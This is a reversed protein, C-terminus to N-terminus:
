NSLYLVYEGNVYKWATEPDPEPFKVGLSESRQVKLRKSWTKMFCSAIEEFENSNTKECVWAVGPPSCVSVWSWPGHYEWNVKHLPIMPEVIDVANNISEGGDMAPPAPPASPGKSKQLPGLSRVLSQGTTTANGGPVLLQHANDSIVSPADLGYQLEHTASNAKNRSNTPSEAPSQEGAFLLDVYEDDAADFESLSQGVSFGDRLLHPTAPMGIQLTDSFRAGLNVDVNSRQAPTM